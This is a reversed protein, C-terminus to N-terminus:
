QAKVKKLGSIYTTAVPFFKFGDDKTEIRKTKIDVVLNVEILDLREFQESSKFGLTTVKDGTELDILHYLDNKSKEEVKLVAYQEKIIFKM